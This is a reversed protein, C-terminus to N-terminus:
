EMFQPIHNEYFKNLLFGQNFGLNLRSRKEHAQEANADSTAM